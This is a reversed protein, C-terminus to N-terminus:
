SKKVVSLVYKKTGLHMRVGLTTPSVTALEGCVLHYLLKEVIQAKCFIIEILVNVM